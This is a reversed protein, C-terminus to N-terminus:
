TYKCVFYVHSRRESERKNITNEYQLNKFQATGHTTFRTADNKKVIVINAVHFPAYM